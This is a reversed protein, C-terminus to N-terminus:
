ILPSHNAIDCYTVRFRRLNRGIAQLQFPKRQSRLALPNPSFNLGGQPVVCPSINKDDLLYFLEIKDKVSKYINCIKNKLSAETAWITHYIRHSLWIADNEYSNANKVFVAIREAGSPCIFLASSLSLLLASDYIRRAGM